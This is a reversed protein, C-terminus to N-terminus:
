HLWSLISTSLYNHASAHWSPSLPQRALSLPVLPGASLAISYAAAAVTCVPSASVFRLPRTTAPHHHHHRSTPKDWERWGGADRVSSSSSPLSRVPPSSLSATPAATPLPPSPHHSLVCILYSTTIARGVGARDQAVLLLLRTRGYLLCSRRLAHWFLALLCAAFPPHPGGGYFLFCRTCLQPRRRRQQRQNNSASSDHTSKRNSWMPAQRHRSKPQAPTQFRNPVQGKEKLLLAM